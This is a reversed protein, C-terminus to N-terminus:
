NPIFFAFSLITGAYLVYKPLNQPAGNLIQPRVTFLCELNSTSNSRAPIELYMIKIYYKKNLKKAHVSGVLM